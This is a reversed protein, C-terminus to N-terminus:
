RKGRPSKPHAPAEGGPSPQATAPKRQEGPPPSLEELFSRGTRDVARMVPEQLIGFAGAWAIIQANTDLSTLGPFFAGSVLLVGLVATMAGAPLRLLLLLVSVQYPSSNGRMTTLSAAGALAAAFAGMFELLFVDSNGPPYGALPCIRAQPMRESRFCFLKALDTDLSAWVGFGVAIVAMLVISWCLIQTFSRIRGQEVEEARFAEHQTEAVVNRSKGPRLRRWREFQDWKRELLDRQPHDPPLHERAQSLVRPARSRLEEGKLIKTLEVEAERINSLAAVIDTSFVRRWFRRYLPRKEIERQAADLQQLARKRVERDGHSLKDDLEELQSRMYKIHADIRACLASRGPGVREGPRKKAM